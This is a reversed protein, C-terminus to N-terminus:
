PKKLKLTNQHTIVTSDQISLNNPLRVATKQHETMEVYSLSTKKLRRSLGEFIHKSHVSLTEFMEVLETQSYIEVTVESSVAIATASRAKEPDFLYMEGFIEGQGLKAIPMLSGGESNKCIVVEGRLIKFSRDGQSGEKIITQGKTFQQIARSTM